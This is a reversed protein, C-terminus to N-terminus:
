VLVKPTEAEEDYNPKQKRTARIYCFVAVFFTTALGGIIVGGGAVSRDVTSHHHGRRVTEELHSVEPAEAETSPWDHGGLKRAVPPEAESAAAAMALAYTVLCCIVIRQTAM